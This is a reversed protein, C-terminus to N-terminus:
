CVSSIPSHAHFFIPTTNETYSIFMTPGLGSGQPIGSILPIPSTPSSRITFVQARDTLYSRFWALSQGTVSFRSELISLLSTNDVTDFASSLDLLVLGTIEGRDTACVIDNHLVLVASETSHFQRYASQREPFLGNLADHSTFQKTVVREVIKSLFTLNTIPHFANLDDPDMSPQKLRATVRALKQSQPFFGSQLSANCVAAIVPALVDKARKV